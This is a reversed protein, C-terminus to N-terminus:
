FYSQQREMDVERRGSNLRAYISLAKNRETLREQFTRASRAMSVNEVSKSLSEAQRGIEDREKGLWLEEAELDKGRVVDRLTQLVREITNQFYVECELIDNNYLSIRSNARVRHEEVKHQAQEEVRKAEALKETNKEQESLAFKLMPDEAEKVAAIRLGLSFRKAREYTEVARKYTKVHEAAENQLTLALGGIKKKAANLEALAKQYEENLFTTQSGARESFMRGGTELVAILLKTAGFLPGADYQPPSCSISKCIQTYAKGLLSRADFDKVAFGVLKHSKDELEQLVELMRRYKTQCTVLDTETM